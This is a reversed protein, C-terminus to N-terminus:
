KLQSYSPHTPLGEDLGFEGFALKLESLNETILHKGSEIPVCRFDEVKCKKAEGNGQPHINFSYKFEDKYILFYWEKNVDSPQTASVVYDKSLASFLSIARNNFKTEIHFYELVTQMIDYTDLLRNDTGPPTDGGFIFVPVRTTGEDPHFGYFLKGNSSMFGHDSTILVTSNKLIPDKKVSDVFERIKEEFLSKKALIEDQVQQAYWADKDSYRYDNKRIVKEAKEQEEDSRKQWVLSIDANSITSWRAHYVLFSRNNKGQVDRMQPILFETLSNKYDLDPQLYPILKTVFYSRLDNTLSLGPRPGTFVMFYDLNFLNLISSHHCTLFLSRFGKYNSIRSSSGESMGSRHDCYGRIKVGKDQLLSLLNSGSEQSRRLVKSWFTKRAFNFIHTGTGSYFIGFYAHTWVTSTRVNQFLRGGSFLGTTNEQQSSDSIQKLQESPWGDLVVFVFHRDLEGPGKKTTFIPLKSLFLPGWLLIFLGAIPWILRDTRSLIEKKNGKKLTRWIVIFLIVWLVWWLFEPYFYPIKPSLYAKGRITLHYREDIFNLLFYIFTVGILTTVLRNLFSILQDISVLKLSIAWFLPILILTLSVSLIGIAFLAHPPDSAFFLVDGSLGFFSISLILSVFLINAWLRLFRM